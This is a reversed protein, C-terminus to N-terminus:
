YRFGVRFFIQDVKKQKAKCGIRKPLEICIIVFSSRTQQAGNLAPWLWLKRKGSKKKENDKIAMKKERNKEGNISFIM